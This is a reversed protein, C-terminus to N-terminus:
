YRWRVNFFSNVQFIVYIWSPIKTSVSFISVGVCDEREGRQRDFQESDKFVGGILLATNVNAVCFPEIAEIIPLIDSSLPEVSGFKGQFQFAILTALASWDADTMGSLDIIFPNDGSNCPNFNGWKFLRSKDEM